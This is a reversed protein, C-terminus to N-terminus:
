RRRLGWGSFEASNVTIGHEGYADQWPATVVEYAGSASKVVTEIAIGARTAFEFDREDHAPVGMVAGEGYGMLVYNAIWVEIPKGTFPHLVSMGTPVGKKEQVAIDAEMVSGRKCEAVFEAIRANGAAVATAIPHEAAIAMFTAGFLTDARTTFVKLAGAGGMLQAFRRPM